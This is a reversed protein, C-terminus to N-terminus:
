NTQWGGQGVGSPKWGSNIAEDRTMGWPFQEAAERARKQMAEVEEITLNLWYDNPRGQEKDWNATVPDNSRFPEMQPIDPIPQSIDMYQKILEWFLEAQWVHWFSQESSIWKGTYRHIFFPHYRIEGSYGGAHKISVDFEDFPYSEIHSKWPFTVIGTKRNFSVIGSTRIRNNKKLLKVITFFIVPIVIFSISLYFVWDFKVDNSLLEDLLTLCGFIFSLIAWISLVFTLTSTGVKWNIENVKVNELEFDCGSYEQSQVGIGNTSYKLISKELFTAPQIKKALKRPRTSDFATSSYYTM